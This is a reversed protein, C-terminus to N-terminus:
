PGYYSSRLTNIRVSTNMKGAMMFQLMAMQATADQM